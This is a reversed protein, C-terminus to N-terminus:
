GEVAPNDDVVAIRTVYGDAGRELRVCAYPRDPALGIDRTSIPWYGKAAHAQNMSCAIVEARNVAQAAWASQSEPGAWLPKRWGFIESVAGAGVVHNPVADGFGDKVLFAQFAVLMADRETGHPLPSLNGWEAGDAATGRTLVARELLEAKKVDLYLGGRQDCFEAGSPHPLLNGSAQAACERVTGSVRLKAAGRADAIDQWGSLGLLLGSSSPENYRREQAYRHLPADMLLGGVAYAEMSVCGAGAGMAIAEAVTASACADAGGEEALAPAAWMGALAALCAALRV